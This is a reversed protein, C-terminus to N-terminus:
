DLIKQMDALVDSPHQLVNFGVDYLLRQDGSPDLLVTIRKATKDTTATAAGYHLALQRETDSFLDFQFKNATKFAKNEAPKDFSAGYITVGLAKFQDHLDRFECGETM